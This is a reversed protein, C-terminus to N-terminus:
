LRLHYYSTFLLKILIYEVNLIGKFLYELIINFYLIYEVYKVTRSKVARNLLFDVM